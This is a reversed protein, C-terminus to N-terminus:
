NNHRKPFLSFNKKTKRKRSMTSKIVKRIIDSPHQIEIDITKPLSDVIIDEDEIEKMKESLM